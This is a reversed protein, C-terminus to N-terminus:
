RDAIIPLKLFGKGPNRNNGQASAASGSSRRSVTRCSRSLELAQGDATSQCGGPQGQLAVMSCFSRASLQVSAIRARHRDQSKCNGTDDDDAAAGTGHRQAEMLAPVPHQRAIQPIAQLCPTRVSRRRDGVTAAAIGSERRNPGRPGV